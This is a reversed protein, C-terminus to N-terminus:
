KRIKSSCFNINFLTNIYRLIYVNAFNSTLFCPQVSIGVLTWYIRLITIYCINPYMETNELCNM